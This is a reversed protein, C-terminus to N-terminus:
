LSLQSNGNSYLYRKFLGFIVIQVANTRNFLFKNLTICDIGFSKNARYGKFIINESTNLLRQHPLLFYRNQIITSEGGTCCLLRSKPTPKKKHTACKTKEM